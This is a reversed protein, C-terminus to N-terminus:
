NWITNAYDAATTLYKGFLGNVQNSFYNSNEFYLGLWGLPVYFIKTVINDPGSLFLSEESALTINLRLPFM